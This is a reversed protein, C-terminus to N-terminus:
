ELDINKNPVYKVEKFILKNGLDDELYANPYPDTLSRIFNYLYELSKDKFDEPTLKSELPKRRKYYSGQEIEQAYAKINPYSDFFKNLLKVSSAVINTFISNMTDGSLDLEEKLWIDGADVKEDSLTMLSVKSQKIGNIIQHQIPSGGRYQPLDSPHIGLCLFKKTIDESILWSWGIFLIVDISKPDLQQV